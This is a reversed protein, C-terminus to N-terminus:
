AGVLGGGLAQLRPMLDLATAIFHQLSSFIVDGGLSYQLM